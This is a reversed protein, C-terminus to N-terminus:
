IENRVIINRKRLEKQLEKWKSDNLSSAYFIKSKYDNLILRLSHPAKGNSELVIEKIDKILYTKSKWFQIQNRIRFYESNLEFYNFQFSLLLIVIFAISYFKWNEPSNVTKEAFVPILLIIMIFIGRMSLLLNGTFKYFHEEIYTTVCDIAEPEFNKKDSFRFAIYQKLIHANSYFVDFIHRTEGNKFTIKM